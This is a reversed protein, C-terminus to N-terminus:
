EADNTKPKGLVTVYEWHGGTAKMRGESIEANTYEESIHVLLDPAIAFKLPDGEYVVKKKEQYKGSIGDGIVDLRGTTLNIIVQPDGSKDEAFIAAREAAEKLGKPIVIDHGSVELFQSLDPYDEAYRRCSFILGAPNKFHVWSKTLCIEDMGLSTIHKLSSGRVLTPKKLGTNIKCRMIQLNDCAEVYEPHLHICTLLFRSEDASVCHQVLRIAEAFDKPLPHWKEPVEVKDIPLFIEADKVLSFRKNKALFELKGEETDRVKLDPDDIKGLIEILPGAQIAGTCSIPVAKRCAIEDNFTMVMGDSFVFCSSQEIFERPSLGARVMELSSVLDERNIKM